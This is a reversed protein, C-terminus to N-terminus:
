AGIMMPRVARVAPQPPPVDQVAVKPLAPEDAGIVLPRALTPRQSEIPGDVRRVPEPVAPVSPSPMGIRAALNEPPLVESEHKRKRGVVSRVSPQCRGFPRVWRRSVAPARGHPDRGWFASGPGSATGYLRGEMCRGLRGSHAASARGKTRAI